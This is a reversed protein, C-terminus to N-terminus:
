RNWRDKYRDQRRMDNRYKIIKDSRVGIEDGIEELRDCYGNSLERMKLLRKKQEDIRWKKLTITEREIESDIAHYMRLEKDSDDLRQLGSEYMKIMTCKLDSLYNFEENLNKVAINNILYVKKTKDCSEYTKDIISPIDIIIKRIYRTNKDLDSCAQDLEYISMKDANNLIVLYKRLNISILEVVMEIERVAIEIQLKKEYSNNNLRTRVAKNLLKDSIRNYNIYKIHLRNTMGRQLSEIAVNVCYIEAILSKVNNVINVKNANCLENFM